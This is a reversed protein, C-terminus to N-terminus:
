AKVAKKQQKKVLSAFAARYKGPNKAMTRLARTSVKIRLKTGTVPDIVARKTVNASFTRKTHRNSHSVNHGTAKKKGSLQCVKSM